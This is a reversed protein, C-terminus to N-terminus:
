QAKKPAVYVKYKEGIQFKANKDLHNWKLFDDLSVGYKRAIASPNDGKVITHTIERAGTPAADSAQSAPAATKGPAQVVLQQGVQLRSKTTLRNWKLLDDLSVGYKAAIAAPTDGKVVTHMTGGSAPPAAPETPAPAPEAAKKGPVRVVYKKGVRLLAGKKLGNWKSFDEVSVGYKKAISAPTEGKAVTHVIEVPGSAAPEPAPAPEPQPEPEPEPQPAPEPTPAPEAPTVVPAPAPLAPTQLAFELVRARWEALAAVAGAEIKNGSNALTEAEDMLRRVERLLWDGREHANSAGTSGTLYLSLYEQTRALTDPLPDLFPEGRDQEVTALARALRALQAIAPAAVERPLAAAYWQQEFLPLYPLLALFNARANPGAPDAAVASVTALLEPPLVKYRADEGFRRALIVARNRAALGLVGGGTGGLYVPDGTVAIPTNKAADPTLAVPNGFADSLLLDEAGTLPAAVKANAKDSWLAALWDNGSRFVPLGGELPGAYEAGAPLRQALGNLYALPAHVEGDYVLGADFAVATAGAALNQLIQRVLKSGSSADPSAMGRGRAYVRWGEYGAQEALDIIRDLGQPGPADSLLVAERVSTGGGTLLAALTDPNDVVVAMPASCGAGNLADVVATLAGPIFQPDIEWRAVGPGLAQGLHAAADAPSSLNACDVNVIVQFGSAAAERAGAEVNPDSADFYVARVGVATLALCAEPGQHRVYLPLAPRNGIRDIRCFHVTKDLTEGNVTVQIRGTYFGRDGPLDKIASWHNGKARLPIPGLTVEAPQAHQLAQVSVKVVATVDTASQLELILPDDAYVYPLPQDPAIGIEVAPAALLLSLLLITHM